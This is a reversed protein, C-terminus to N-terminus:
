RKITMSIKIFANKVKTKIKQLMNKKLYKNLLEEFNAATVESIFRDRKKHAKVSQVAASNYKVAESVDCQAFIISDKIGQFLLEGKKTHIFVLSTGKENYMQPVVNEIGWFDALTIDARRNLGKGKCASCSQRLYLDALFGRMYTDHSVVDSYETNDAFQFLVSYKKWGYKKYRFFVKRISSKAVSERYKLYIDWVKPSPVGHCIIDQTYLNDYDKGLFSYLGEIQCPTGTFLVNKGSDLLGKAEKYTSGIESQVYKSGQLETIDELSYIAKHAVKFTEDFAAGFVVGGNELFSKAIHYFLGGSSSHELAIKENSYAAFATPVSDAKETKNLIPCAKECLGCEICTASEVEPYLFGDSAAAMTISKTPCINFCAHCGSCYKESCLVPM